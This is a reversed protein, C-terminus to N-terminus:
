KLLLNAYVLNLYLNSTSHLLSVLGFPNPLHVHLLTLTVGVDDLRYRQLAGLLLHHLHGVCVWLCGSQNHIMLLNLIIMLYIQLHLVNIALILDDLLILLIDIM